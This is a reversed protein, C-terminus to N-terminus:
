PITLNTHINDYIIGQCVTAHDGNHLQFNGTAYYRLTITIQIIPPIHVGRRVPSSLQGRVLSELYIVTEKFLHFRLKFNHGDFFELPNERDRLRTRPIRLFQERRRLREELRQFRRLM